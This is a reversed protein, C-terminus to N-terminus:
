PTDIDVLFDIFLEREVDLHPRALQDLLSHVPPDRALHHQRSHTVDTAQFPGECSPDTAIM